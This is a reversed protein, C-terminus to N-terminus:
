SLTPGREDGESAHNFVVDLIVEIGAAHFSRVLQKFERIPAGDDRGVAYSRQLAFFSVPQYGWANILRAGTVPNTRETDLEEFENVPLLEIATVGLEKLYPIKEIM